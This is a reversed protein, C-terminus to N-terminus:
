SSLWFGRPLSCNDEFIEVYEEFVLSLLEDLVEEVGKGWLYSLHRLLQLFLLPLLMVHVEAMTLGLLLFIYQSVEVRLFFRVEKVIEITSRVPTAM